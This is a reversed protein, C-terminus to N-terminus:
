PRIRKPPKFNQGASEFVSVDGDASIRAIFPVHFRRLARKMAPLAAVIASAMQAGTLDSRGLFFAAVGAENLANREVENLRIRDDKSLVVWEKRGVFSLWEVDTANKSFHTDHAEVTEGAACLAESV